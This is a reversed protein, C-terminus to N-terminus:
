GVGAWIEISRGFQCEGGGGGAVEVGRWQVLLPNYSAGVYGGDGM